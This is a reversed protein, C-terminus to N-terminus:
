PLGVVPVPSARDMTSGDGLQGLGNRGACFVRGDSMIACLHSGGVSIMQASEGAAIGHIAIGALALGAIGVAIPGLISGSSGEDGPVGTAPAQADCDTSRGEILADVASAICADANLGMRAVAVRTPSAGFRFRELPLEDRQDGRVVMVNETGVARAIAALDRQLRQQMVAASAYTLTVGDHDSLVRDLTPDITLTAGRAGVEVTHVRSPDPCALQVQYSGPPAPVRAPLASAAPRGQVLVRCSLPGEGTDIQLASGSRAIAARADTVVRIAHPPHRDPSPQLDPVLHLARVALAQAEPTRRAHLHARIAAMFLEGLARNGGEDMGIAAARAVADRLVPEATAVADDDDGYGMYRDAAGAATVLREREATSLPEIQASLTAAIRERSVTDSIVV